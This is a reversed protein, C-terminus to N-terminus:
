CYRKDGDKSPDRSLWTIPGSLIRGLFGSEHSRLKWLRGQVVGPAMTLYRQARVSALAGACRCGARAVESSMVVCRHVTSVRLTRCDHAVQSLLRRPQAALPSCIESAGVQLRRVQEELVGRGISSSIVFLM